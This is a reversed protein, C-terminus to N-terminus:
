NPEADQLRAPMRPGNTVASRAFDSKCVGFPFAIRITNPPQEPTMRADFPMRAEAIM